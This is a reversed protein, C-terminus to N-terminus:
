AEGRYENAMRRIADSITTDVVMDIFEAPIDHCSKRLDELEGYTSHSVPISQHDSLLQYRTTPKVNNTSASSM